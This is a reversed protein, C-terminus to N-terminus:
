LLTVYFVKNINSYIENDICMFHSLPFMEWERLLSINGGGCEGARTTHFKNIKNSACHCYFDLVVKIPKSKNKCFTNEIKHLLNSLHISIKCFLLHIYFMHELTWLTCQINMSDNSIFIYSFRKKGKWGMRERESLSVIFLCNQYTEVIWHKKM